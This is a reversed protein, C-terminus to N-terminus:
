GLARAAVFVGPALEKVRVWTAIDGRVPHRIVGWGVVDVVSDSEGVGM